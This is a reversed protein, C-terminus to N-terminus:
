HEDTSERRGDILASHDRSRHATNDALAEDVAVAVLGNTLRESRPSRNHSTIPHSLAPSRGSGRTETRRPRAIFGASGCRESVLKGSESMQGSSCGSESHPAPIATSWSFGHSVVPPIQTGGPVNPKGRGRVTAGGSGIEPFGARQNPKPPTVEARSQRGPVTAESCNICRIQGANAAANDAKVETEAGAKFDGSFNRRTRQKRKAKDETEV